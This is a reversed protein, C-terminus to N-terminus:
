RPLTLTAFRKSLEAKVGERQARGLGEMRVAAGVQEGVEVLRGEERGGQVTLENFCPDAQPSAKLLCIRM